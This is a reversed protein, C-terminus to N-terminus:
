VVSKRDKEQLEPVLDKIYGELNMVAEKEHTKEDAAGM